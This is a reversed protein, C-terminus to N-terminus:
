TIASGIDIAVTEANLVAQSPGIGLWSKELIQYFGFVETHVSPLNLWSAQSVSKEIENLIVFDFALLKGTTTEVGAIQKKIAVPNVKESFQFDVGLSECRQKLQQTLETLGGPSQYVGFIQQVYSNLALLVIKSPKQVSTQSRYYQALSILEPHSLHKKVLGQYTWSKLVTRYGISNLKTLNNKSDNEILPTRIKLWLKGVEAIYNRWEFMAQVGLESEILKLIRGLGSGPIVLKRSNSLALEYASDVETLEIHDELSKGTKLFLDRYAALLTLTQPITVADASEEFVQVEHGKVKLRAAVALGGHGAGIVAVRAM